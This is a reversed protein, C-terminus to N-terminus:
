AFMSYDPREPERPEGMQSRRDARQVFLDFRREDTERYTVQSALGEEAQLAADVQDRLALLCARNGRIKAVPEAEGGVGVVRRPARVHLYPVEHQPRGDAESAVSRERREGDSV